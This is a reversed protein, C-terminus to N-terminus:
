RAGFWRRLRRWLSPAPASDGVREWSRGLMIRLEQRVEELTLGLRTLVQAAVGEQERLLGLLLHETGVYNHNLNRDEEM